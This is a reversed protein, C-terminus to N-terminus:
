IFSDALYISVTKIVTAAAVAVTNAPVAMLLCSRFSSFILPPSPHYSGLIFIALNEHGCESRKEYRM